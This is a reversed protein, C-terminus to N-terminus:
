GSGSIFGAAAVMQKAVEMTVDGEAERHLLDECKRTRDPCVCADSRGFLLRHLDFLHVDIDSSSGDSHSQSINFNSGPLQGSTVSEGSDTDEDSKRKSISTGSASRHDISSDSTDVFMCRLLENQLDIAPQFRCFHQRVGRMNSGSGEYKAMQNYETALVNCHPVGTLIVPILGLDEKIRKTVEYVLSAWVDFSHSTYHWAMELFVVGKRRKKGRKPLRTGKRKSRYLEHKSVFPQPVHPRSYEGLGVKVTEGAEYILTINSHHVTSGEESERGTEPGLPFLKEGVEKQKIQQSMTSYDPVPDHDAAKRMEGSSKGLAINNTNRPGDNDGDHGSASIGGDDSVDGNKYVFDGWWSRWEQINRLVTLVKEVGASTWLSNEGGIHSMLGMWVFRRDFNLTANHFLQWNLLRMRFLSASKLSPDERTSYLERPLILDTTYSHQEDHTNRNEDNNNNSSSVVPIATVVQDHFGQKERNVRFKQTMHWQFANGFPSEGDFTFYAPHLSYFHGEDIGYSVTPSKGESNDTLVFSRSGSHYALNVADLQAKTYRFNFNRARDSIKWADKKDVADRVDRAPLPGHLNSHEKSSGGLGIDGGYSFYHRRGLLDFIDDLNIDSSESQDSTSTAGTTGQNFTADDNTDGGYSTSTQQTHSGGTWFWSMCGRRGITQGRGHMDCDGVGYEDLSSDQTLAERVARYTTELVSSGVFFLDVDESARLYEKLQSKTQHPTIWRFNNRVDKESSHEKGDQPNSPHSRHDKQDYDIWYGSTTQPVEARKNNSSSEQVYNIPVDVVSTPNFDGLNPDGCELEVSGSFILRRMPEETYRAHCLMHGECNRWMVFLQLSHKGSVFCPVTLEIMSEGKKAQSGGKPQVTTVVRAKADVGCSHAANNPFKLRCSERTMDVYIYDTSPRVGNRNSLYITKENAQDDQVVSSEKIDKYQLVNHTSRKTDSSLITEYRIHTTSRLEGPTLSRLIDGRSSGYQEHGHNYGYAAIDTVQPHGWRQGVDSTLNTLRFRYAASSGSVFAIDNSEYEEIPKFMNGLRGTDHPDFLNPASYSAKKKGRANGDNFRRQNNKNVNNQIMHGVNNNKFPNTADKVCQKRLPDLIRSICRDVPNNNVIVNDNPPYYIQEASSLSLLSVVTALTKM